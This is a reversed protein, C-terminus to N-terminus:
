RRDRSRILTRITLVQITVLVLWLTLISSRALLGDQQFGFLLLGGLYQVTVAIISIPLTVIFLSFYAAYNSGRPVLALLALLLCVVAYVTLATMSRRAVVRTGASQRRIADLGM